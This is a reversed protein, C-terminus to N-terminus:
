MVLEGKKKDYSIKIQKKSKSKGKGISLGQKLIYDAILDEVEQQVTRRLPRAGYEQSFGQKLIYNRAKADLSVKLNLEALRENFEALLLGIIKRADGRNLSKFIIIDDIRNLLEPRVKKKLEKLLEQRMAEYAKEEEEPTQRTQKETGNEKYFGLIKDESIKEAGINSTMIIITNKFSVRSGRADTLHGEELIQLLINLVDQHAKEVEDFLIVSHPNQAVQETLQGGQEFGVYGPPSGILKSVSHMEMFESMDIQIMRDESGFLLRSLVKALESKGVGTPGLFLFSAWPRNKYAIGIRGRKVAYSVREIAQEQSVIDKAVAKDLELLASSEDSTLTNVPIGTWDALVARIIDEDVAYKKLSRKSYKLDKIQSLRDHLGQENKRLKDARKYDGADVLTEKQNQLKNLRVSLDVVNKYEADHLMKKAAAADDILDIAKDPLYRDSLYMDSLKVASEIAGDEILVQHHTELFPKLGKLITTSTEVDTEPVNLLQFRRTVVANESMSTKFNEDTTTGIVRIKGRSLAPTMVYGLNMGGKLQSGFLTHIDDFFLIVKPDQEAEELIALMKKEVEGQLKSGIVLLPTKILYIKTDLLLAPVQNAAIRNALGYILATKGVGSPGVLLPNHKEKRLLVKMIDDIEDDRAIIQPLQKSKALEVLDDGILTLISDEKRSQASQNPQDKGRNLLSFPMSALGLVGQKLRDYEVGVKALEQVFSIDPQKLIALFLHETGVYISGSDRALNYAELLVKKVKNSLDVQLAQDESIKKLQSMSQGKALNALTQDVSVGTSDLIHHALTDKEMLLAIFIREINLDKKHKFITLKGALILVSVLNQSFRQWTKNKKEEFLIEKLNVEKNNM